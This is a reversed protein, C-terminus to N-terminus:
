WPKRFHKSMWLSRLRRLSRREDGPKRVRFFRSFVPGTPALFKSAAASVVGAFRNFFKSRSRPSAAENFLLSLSRTTFASGGWARVSPQAEQIEAHCADSQVIM